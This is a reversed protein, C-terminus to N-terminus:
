PIIASRAHSAFGPLQASPQRGQAYWLNVNGELGSGEKLLHPVNPSFRRRSFPVLKESSHQLRDIHM